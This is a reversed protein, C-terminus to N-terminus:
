LSALSYDQTSNKWCSNEEYFAVSKRARLGIWFLSNKTRVSFGLPGLRRLFNRFRSWVQALACAPPRKWSTKETPRHVRHTWFEWFFYKLWNNFARGRYRTYQHAHLTCPTHTFSWRVHTLNLRWARSATWNSHSTARNPARQDFFAHVFPKHSKPQFGQFTSFVNICSLSNSCHIPNELTTITRFQNIHM